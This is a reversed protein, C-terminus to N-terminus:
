PCWRDCAPECRDAKPARILPTVYIDNLHHTVDLCLSSAEKLSALTEVAFESRLVSSLVICKKQRSYELIREYLLCVGQESPILNNWATLDDLIIYSNSSVSEFSRKLKKTYEAISKQRDIEVYYGKGYGQLGPPIDKGVTCHYISFNNKKVYSIIHNLLKKWFEKSSHYVILSDGGYLGGLYHDLSPIGTSFEKKMPDPDDSPGIFRM